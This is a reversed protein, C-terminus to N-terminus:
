VEGEGEEKSTKEGRGNVKLREVSDECIIDKLEIINEHKFRTLMKVERM